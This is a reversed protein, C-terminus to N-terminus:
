LGAHVSRPVPSAAIVIANVAIRGASSLVTFTPCRMSKAILIRPETASTVAIRGRQAPTLYDLALALAGGSLDHIEPPQEQGTRVNAVVGNFTTTQDYTSRPSFPGM